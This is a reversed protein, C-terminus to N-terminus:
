KYRRNKGNYTKKLYKVIDFRVPVKYNALHKSCYDRVGALVSEDSVIVKAVPVEGLLEHKEGTVLVDKVGEYQLIIMEIEEPYINIGGSIIINKIRGTLYLYGEEDLYGRDGTHLLNNRLAISTAEKNKFYGKMVNRGIVAVEGTEGAQLVKDNQDVIKVCVGPIAKGVSGIKRIADEAPLATVRPACETQGYTQIFCVSPFKNILMRLKDIPMKGGGFCIYKLTNINYKECYRYELLMLLMSPVATFSTIRERQVISLFQKPMFLSDLIVITAGLYVHTLFQATNCYGFYMPLAILVVENSSLKLSCINSEVNTLLNEHTLMVRKPSSTTGSTHLMIAVDKPVGDFNSEASKEIWDGVGYEEKENTDMYYVTIKYPYLKFAEMFISKYISVSVILDVECYSITSCIEIDKVQPDIPVVVRESFVIGFYAIAYNISNPMFIAICRTNATVMNHIYSKLNQSKKYWNKYTLAEGSYKIAIKDNHMQNSLLKGIKM